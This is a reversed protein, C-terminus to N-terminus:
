DREGGTVAPMAAALLSHRCLLLWEVDDESLWQREYGHFRDDGCRNNPRAQHVHTLGCRRRAADNDHKGGKMTSHNHSTLRGCLYLTLTCSVCIFLSRRHKFVRKSEYTGPLFITPLWVLHVVHILDRKKLAMPAFHCFIIRTVLNSSGM